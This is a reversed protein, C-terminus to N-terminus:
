KVFVMKKTDSFGSAVIKYFYVGSSLDSANFTITYYGADKYSNILEKVLRGNVDYIKIEMYGNVPLSFDIQTEPNFPNPYNQSLIYKTPISNSVPSLKFIKGEGPNFDGLNVYTGQLKDLIFNSSNTDAINEIKWKTFGAMSIHNKKFLVEVNRWGGIKGVSTGDIHPSCRKNVVM